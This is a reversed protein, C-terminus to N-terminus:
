ELECLDIVRARITQAMLEGVVDERGPYLWNLFIEDKKLWNGFAVREAAIAPKSAEDALGYRASASANFFARFM